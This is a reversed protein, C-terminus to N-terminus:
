RWPGLRVRPVPFLATEIDTVFEIATSKAKPRTPGKVSEPLPADKVSDPPQAPQRELADWLVHLSNKSVLLIEKCKAVTLTPLENEVVQEKITDNLRGFANELSTWLTNGPLARKLFSDQVLEPSLVIPEPQQQPAPPPPAKAKNKSGKQGPKAATAQPHPAVQVPKSPQPLIFPPQLTFNLLFKLKAKFLEIPPMAHVTPQSNPIPVSEAMAREMLRIGCWNQWHYDRTGNRIDGAHAILIAAHELYTALARYFSLSKDDMPPSVWAPPLGVFEPTPNIVALCEMLGALTEISFAVDRPCKSIEAIVSLAIYYILMIVTQPYAYKIFGGVKVLPDKIFAFWRTIIVEDLSDAVKGPTFVMLRYAYRWYSCLNNVQDEFLNSKPDRVTDIDWVIMADFAFDYCLLHSQAREPTYNNLPFWLMLYLFRRFTCVNRHTCTWHMVARNIGQVSIGRIKKRAPESTQRDRERRREQILEVRQKAEDLERQMDVRLEELKEKVIRHPLKPDNEETMQLAGQSAQRYFGIYTFYGGSTHQVRRAKLDALDAEELRDDIDPIAWVGDFFGRNREIPHAVFPPASDGPIAVTVHFSAFFKGLNIEFLALQIMGIESQEKETKGSQAELQALLAILQTEDYDRDSRFRRLGVQKVYEQLWDSRPKDPKAPDMPMESIERWEHTVIAGLAMFKHAAQELHLATEIFHVLASRFLKFPEDELEVATYLYACMLFTSEFRAGDIRAYQYDLLYGLVQLQERPGLYPHRLGPPQVAVSGEFLNKIDHGGHSHAFPDSLPDGIVVAIENFDMHFDPTCLIEGPVMMRVCEHFKHLDISVYSRVIAAQGSELVGIVTEYGSSDAGPSLTLTFKDTSIGTFATADIERVSAPVTFSALKTEGFAEAGIVELQLLDGRLGKV